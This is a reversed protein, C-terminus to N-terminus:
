LLSFSIYSSHMAYNLELDKNINLVLGKKRAHYRLKNLFNLYLSKYNGGNRNRKCFTLALVSGDKIYNNKIMQIILKGFTNITGCSDMFSIDFPKREKSVVDKVEGYISNVNHKRHIKHVKYNNEILTIKQKKIGYKNLYKTTRMLKSDLGIARSSKSIKNKKLVKILNENFLKKYKNNQKDYPKM